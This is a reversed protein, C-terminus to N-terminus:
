RNSAELREGMMYWLCCTRLANPLSDLQRIPVPLTHVESELNFGPWHSQFWGHSTPLRLWLQQLGCM